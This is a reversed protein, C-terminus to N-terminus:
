RKVVNILADKQSSAPIGRNRERSILGIAVGPELKEGKAANKLVIRRILGSQESQTYITFNRKYGLREIDQRLIRVCLSHFTAITMKKVKDESVMKGVREKMENAAKNTFTVALISEPRYGERLLHCIRTTIVRTKGTGAGALILVPGSITGAAQRQAANLDDLSGGSLQHRQHPTPIYM